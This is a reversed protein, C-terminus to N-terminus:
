NILSKFIKSLSLRGLIKGLNIQSGENLVDRVALQGSDFVRRFKKKEGSFRSSFNRSTFWVNDMKAIEGSFDFGASEGVGCINCIDLRYDEVGGKACNARRSDKERRDFVMSLLEGINVM